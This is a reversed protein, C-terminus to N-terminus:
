LRWGVARAVVWAEIGSAGAGRVARALEDMSAGSTMVDDLLAVRRGELRALCVFAGRVNKRREALAMEVQPPTDRVRQCGDPLMPIDLLRSLHGGILAAQNFGRTMMRGAHLPMPLILDPRAAMCLSEALREALERALATEGGYKLQTILM